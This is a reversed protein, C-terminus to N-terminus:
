FFSLLYICHIDIKKKLSVMEATFLIQSTKAVAYRTLVSPDKRKFRRRDTICSPSTDHGVGRGECRVVEDVWNHHAEGGEDDNEGHLDVPYNDLIM